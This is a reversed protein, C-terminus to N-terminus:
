NSASYNSKTLIDKMKLSIDQALEKRGQGAYIARLIDYALLSYMSLKNNHMISLARQALRASEDYKKHKLFHKAKYLTFLTNNLSYEGPYFVDESIPEECCIGSSDISSLSYNRLIKIITAITSPLNLGANAITSSFQDIFLLLPEGPTVFLLYHSLLLFNFCIAPLDEESSTSIKQLLLDTVEMNIDEDVDYRVLDLAAIMLKKQIAFLANEEAKDLSRYTKLYSEAKAVNLQTISQMFLLCLLNKKHHIHETLSLLTAFFMEKKHNIFGYLETYVLYHDALHYKDEILSIQEKLSANEEYLKLLFEFIEMQEQRSVFRSQFIRTVYHQKNLDLIYLILGKLLAGKMDALEKNMAITELLSDTISNGNQAVLTSVIFYQEVYITTFRLKAPSLPSSATDKEETLINYNLLLTYSSAAIPEIIDPETMKKVGYNIRDQVLKEIIKLKENKLSDFAFHHKIFSQTIKWLILDAKGDELEKLCNTTCLIELYRAFSLFNIFHKGAQQLYYDDVNYNNIVTTIEEERMFLTQSVSIDNLTEDPMLFYKNYFISSTFSYMFQKWTSPQMSVIIKVENYQRTANIFEVINTLIVKQKASTISREDFGDIILVFRSNSPLIEHPEETWHMYRGLWKLLSGKYIAINHLQHANIFCCIDKPFEPKEKLWLALATHVLAISKGFGSPSIIPLINKDTVLFQRIFNTFSERAVTKAFSIGSANRIAQITQLSHELGTQRLLQIENKEKEGKNLKHQEYFDDWSKYDIYLALAELTYISFDFSRKAFGLVRKLTTESISKETKNFIAASLNKCDSPALHTKGFQHVVKELLSNILEEEIFIRM